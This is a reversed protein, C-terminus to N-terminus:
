AFHGTDIRICTRLYIVAQNRNRIIGFDTKRKRLHRNVLTGDQVFHRFSRLGLWEYTKLHKSLMLAGLWKDPLLCVLLSLVISSILIMSSRNEAFYLGWYWGVLSFFVLTWFLNILQNLM